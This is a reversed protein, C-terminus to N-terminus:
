AGFCTKRSYTDLYCGAKLSYVLDGKRYLLYYVERRGRGGWFFQRMQLSTQTFYRTSYWLDVATM